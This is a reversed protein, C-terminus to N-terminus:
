APTARWPITASLKYVLGVVVGVILWEVFGAIAMSLTLRPGINLIAYNVMATYGVVFVGVVAGFRLGADVGSRGQYGKAYIYTAAFMAILIGLFLNPLYSTDAAPRFVGPYQAFQGALLTGYVLFGYAMDVVAGVVAALALRGFNM